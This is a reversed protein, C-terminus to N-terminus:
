QFYSPPLVSRGTEKKLAELGTRQRSLVGWFEEPLDPETRFIEEMRAIKGLYKEIRLSFQLEYDEGTYEKDFVQQFLEVLDGYRPLYGIPTEIADYEGHVRGEAWLVWITKDLIENTYRGEHKLFYNTAFVRPCNSLRRGFEVHNRLYTGLPVVMFDLNAMPNWNRIGEMGLTASTTESEITAGIYVGHEWNLAECIPVNTDSDRGGYFIGQVVAGKPDHVMPDANELESIRMTYRANSHAFPISKGDGDTKGEWWEGSFNVGKKPIETDGMGQWFPVGDAVLVNSFILERPTTLAEYILPDDVPNVDKIIGFIGSEINVARANGEGDSRIYAIDDGVISQGPIMATSTKGCASPYAGTFYTVRDKYPPHVGMVLMHETLWDEQNAKYIGLRLALKKLGLSNGAYQNNVSYVKGDIIDVYIRRKDVNKTCNREDLEGAAHVFTFFAPSGQLRKFQEYGSRYLLDESHAVYASDTIQLACLSFRSDTPGLSFFRVLMEKGRMAGDLIGMVEELGAEREVTNISRSLNQGEPLLVATHEKDRAQDYYGDYHITHGETKLRSEEGKELALQRVHAIEEPDDTIVTVRDPKCLSAFKKVQDIVHSNHLAELKALAEPDLVGSKPM